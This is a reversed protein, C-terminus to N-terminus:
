PPTGAQLALPCEPLPRRAGASEAAALTAAAAEALSTGSALEAAVRAHGIAQAACGADLLAQALNNRLAANRPARDVGRGFAEVAEPLDGRAYAVNGVGLWGVVADPWRFVAARYSAAAEEFRGATELGAAAELFLAPEAAAPLTGPELVTFAWRGAREWAGVFRPWRMELRRDTGSRLIAVGRGTDYGIAVAYHWFPWSEVGLNQLVVVPRDAALEALIAGADAPLVYPMLGARRTAGLMEAQLSGRRAPILLQESLAQPSAPHGAATLVTALAAPGCQHDQQPFFPTSSLEVSAPAEPPLGDRLPQVATCGAHFALLAAAVPAARTV